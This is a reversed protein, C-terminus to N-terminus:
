GDTSGERRVPPTYWEPHRGTMPEYFSRIEELDDEM